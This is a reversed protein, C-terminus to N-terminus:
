KGGGLLKRAANLGGANEILDLIDTPVVAAQPTGRRALRYARDQLRVTNLLESLNARADAVAITEAPEMHVDYSM